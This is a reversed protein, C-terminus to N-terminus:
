LFKGELERLRDEAEGESNYGDEFLEDGTHLGWENNDTGTGNDLFVVEIEEGDEENNRFINVWVDDNLRKAMKMEGRRM